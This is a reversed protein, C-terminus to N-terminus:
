CRGGLISSKFLLRMKKQRANIKLHWTLKRPTYINWLNWSLEPDFHAELEISGTKSGTNTKKSKLHTCNELMTDFDSRCTSMYSTLPKPQHCFIKKFILLLVLILWGLLPTYTFAGFHNSSIQTEHALIEVTPHKQTVQAWTGKWCNCIFLVLVYYSPHAWTRGKCCNCNFLVVVLPCRCWISESKHVIKSQWNAWINRNQSRDVWSESPKTILWWGHNSPEFFTLQLNLTTLQFYIAIAM